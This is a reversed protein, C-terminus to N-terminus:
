LFPSSVCQICKRKNEDNDARQVPPHDAQKLKVEDGANEAAHAGDYGADNIRNHPECANPSDGDQEAAVADAM